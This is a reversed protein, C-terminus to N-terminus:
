AMRMMRNIAALMEVFRGAVTNKLPLPQGPLMPEPNHRLCQTWISHYYAEVNYRDEGTPRPFLSALFDRLADDDAFVYRLTTFSDTVLGRYEDTLTQLTTGDADREYASTAPWGGQKFATDPLAARQSLFAEPALALGRATEQKPMFPEIITAAFGEVGCGAVFARHLKEMEEQYRAENRREQPVFDVTGDTRPKQLMEVDNYLLKMMKAGNGLVAVPLPTGSLGVKAGQLISERAMRGGFYFIMYLNLRVINLYNSLPSNGRHLGKMADTIEDVLVNWMRRFEDYRGALLPTALAARKSESAHPSFFYEVLNDRPPVNDGHNERTVTECLIANGAFRLSAQMIPRRRLWLSLDTTGGGIDLCFFGTQDNVSQGKLYRAQISNDMMMFGVAESESCFYVDHPIKYCHTCLGTVITHVKAIFEDQLRGQMSLPYSARWHLAKAGSVVAHWLCMMLYQELFLHAHLKDATLTGWKLDDAVGRVIEPNFATNSLFPITSDLLASGEHPTDTRRRLLSYHTARHPIYQAVLQATLAVDAGEKRGFLFLAGEGAFSVPSSADAALDHKYATTGTTGFDFGLNYEHNKGNQATEYAPLFLGVEAGELSFCLGQPMRPLLTVGQGAEGAGLVHPALPLANGDDYRLLYYRNWGAMAKPPWIAIQPANRHRSYNILDQIRYRKAEIIGNGEDLLEADIAGNHWTLHCRLRGSRLQPLHSLAFDRKLPLLACWDTPMNGALVQMSEMAVASAHNYAGGERFLCIRDTFVNSPPKKESADVSYLLDRARAHIPHTSIGDGGRSLFEFYKELLSRQLGDRNEAAPISRTLLAYIENRLAVRRDAYRSGELLAYPTTFAWGNEGHVIWPDQATFPGRIEAAPCLMASMGDFRFAVAGYEGNERRLEFLSLSKIGRRHAVDRFVRVFPSDSMESLVLTRVRLQGGTGSLLLTALLGQWQGVADANGVSLDFAFQISQSFIDPISHGKELSNQVDMSRSILGLANETETWEYTVPAQMGHGQKLRPLSLFNMKSTRGSTRGSTHGSTRGSQRKSAM